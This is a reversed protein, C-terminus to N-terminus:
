LMPSYDDQELKSPESIHLHGALVSARMSCLLGGALLEKLACLAIFSKM